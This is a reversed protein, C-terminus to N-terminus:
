STTGNSLSHRDSKIIRRDIFNLKWIVARGKPNVKYPCKQLLIWRNDSFKIVKISSINISPNIAAQNGLLTRAFRVLEVIM